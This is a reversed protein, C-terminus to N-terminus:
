LEDAFKGNISMYPTDKLYKKLLEKTGVEGAGHEENNKRWKNNDRGRNFSADVVRLNNPSNDMPNGNKHDVDKGDGIKVRGNRILQNRAKTRENRRKRQEPKAGYIKLYKKRAKTSEKCCGRDEQVLKGFESNIKVEEGFLQEEEDPNLALNKSENDDDDPFKLLPIKKKKGNIIIDTNKNSEEEIEDLDGWDDPGEINVDSVEWGLYDLLKMLDGDIEKLQQKKNKINEYSDEETLMFFDKFSEFKEYTHVQLATYVKGNGLKLKSKISKKGTLKKLEEPDMGYDKAYSEVTKEETNGKFSFEVKSNERMQKITNKGEDTCFDLSKMKANTGDPSAQLMYQAVKSTECPCNCSGDCCNCFKCKGTAAESFLADAFEDNDMMIDQIQEALEAHFQKMKVLDKMINPNREAMPSNAWHELEVTQGKLGQECDSECEKDSCEWCHGGAGPGITYWFDPKPGSYNGGSPTFWKTPGMGVGTKFHTQEKDSLKSVLDNIKEVTGAHKAFKNKCKDSSDEEKCGGLMYGMAMNALAVTEGPASSVLRANGMKLSVGFRECKGTEKHCREYVMDSKSTPGSRAAFIKWYDSVGVKNEGKINKGAHICKWEYEEDGDLEDTWADVTPQMREPVSGEEVGYAEAREQSLTITKQIKANDKDSVNGVSLDNGHVMNFHNVHAGEVDESKVYDTSYTSKGKPKNSPSRLKALAKAMKNTLKQLLGEREEMEAQQEPTLEGEIPQETPQIEGEVPQQQQQQEEEPPRENQQVLPEEIAMLDKSTPTPGWEGSNAKDQAFGVAWAKKVMPKSPVDAKTSPGKILEHRNPNFAHAVELKYLSDKIDKVMVVHDWPDTSQEWDDKHHHAVHHDAERSGVGHTGRKTANSFSRNALRGQGAPMGESLMMEFDLNLNEVAKKPDNSTMRKRVMELRKKEAKQMQPMMRKAIQAIRKKKKKVKADIKERQMFPVDEWKMGRILKARIKAIAAKQAKKGLAKKGKRRKEKMKRKRARVKATRRAARAMKRRSAVTLEDLQENEDVFDAFEDLDFWSADTSDFSEFLDIYEQM